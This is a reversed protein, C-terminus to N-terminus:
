YRYAYGTGIYESKLKSAMDSLGLLKLIKRTRLGAILDGRLALFVLLAVVLVTVMLLIPTLEFFDRWTSALFAYLVAQVAFLFLAVGLCGYLMPKNFIPKLGEPSPPRFVVLRVSPNKVAMLLGNKDFVADIYGGNEFSISNFWGKLARGGVEMEIWYGKAPKPRTKNSDHATASAEAMGDEGISALMVPALETAMEEFKRFRSPSYAERSYSLNSVTGGISYLRM